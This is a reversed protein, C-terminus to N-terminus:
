PKASRIQVTVAGRNNSLRTWDEGCRFYLDGDVPSEFQGESGVAIAETLVFARSLVAAELRGAGGKQGDASIQEEGDISWTGTSTIEYTQGQEVRFAPQWGRKAVVKATSRGEKKVPRLGKRNWNWGCLDARYGNDVHTVFQDYEFRLQKAVKGYASKFSVGQRESMLAPGLQRFKASYNPNNALLHCLAWRWSYAEWSDGTIQGAAVIEGLQKPHKARRIYNIVRQDVDVENTGAKWYNGLEAMGESYWTPGTSGFNQACYAHVAEHQVVGHDSCSYVTSKTIRVREKTLSSSITVGESNAIKQKANAPIPYDNWQRIDHVVYCEIVGSPPRGFYKSILGLMRELKDLLIRTDRESIDTHLLFHQSRVEHPRQIKTSLGNYKTQDQNTRSNSDTRDALLEAKLTRLLYDGNSLKSGTAEVVRDGKRLRNLDQSRVLVRYKKELTVNLLGKPAYRSRATKLTLRRNRISWVMGSVLCAKGRKAQRSQSEETKSEASRIGPAFGAEDVWRVESVQDLLKSKGDASNDFEVYMGKKLSDADLEGSIAITTDPGRLLQNGSLQVAGDDRVSFRLARTEGSENAVRLVGRRLEEVSGSLRINEVIQV